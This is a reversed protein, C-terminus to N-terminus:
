PEVEGGKLLMGAITAPLYTFYDAPLIAALSGVLDQLRTADTDTIHRAHAAGTLCCSAAALCAAAVIVSRGNRAKLFVKLAEFEQEFEAYDTSRPRQLADRLLREVWDPETSETM